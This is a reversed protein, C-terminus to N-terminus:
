HPKKAHSSSSTQIPPNTTGKHSTNSRDQERFGCAFVDLRAFHISACDATQLSSILVCQPTCTTSLFLFSSLLAQLQSPLLQIQLQSLFASTDVQSTFAQCFLLPFPALALLPQLFVLANDGRYWPPIKLFVTPIVHCLFTLKHTQTFDLQEQKQIFELYHFIPLLPATQRKFLGFRVKLSVLDWLKEPTQFSNLANKYSLPRWSGSFEQSRRFTAGPLLQPNPQAPSAAGWASWRSSVQLVSTQNLHSCALLWAGM